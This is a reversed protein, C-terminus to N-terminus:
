RKKSLSLKLRIHTYMFFRYWKKELRYHSPLFFAGCDYKQYTSLASFTLLLGSARGTLSRMIFSTKVKGTIVAQM